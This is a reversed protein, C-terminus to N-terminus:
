RARRQASFGSALAATQEAFRLREEPAMATVDGVREWGCQLCALAFDEALLQGNCRPCRLDKMLRM